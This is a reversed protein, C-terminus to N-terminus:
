QEEGAGRGSTRRRECDACIAHLAAYRRQRGWRNLQGRRSNEGPTCIDLNARRNDLGYENLHDVVLGPPPRMIQAQMSIAGGNVKRVAHFARAQKSYALHWRHAALDEYDEDDVVAVSGPRVTSVLPILKM